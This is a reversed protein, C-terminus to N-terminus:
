EALYKARLSRAGAGLVKAAARGALLKRLLSRAENKESASVRAQEIAAIVKEMAETVRAQQAANAAPVL